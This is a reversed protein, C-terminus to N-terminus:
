ATDPTSAVGCWWRRRRDPIQYTGLGLQPMPRGDNLTLTKMGDWVPRGRM